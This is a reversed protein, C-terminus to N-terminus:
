EIKKLRVKLVILLILLGLIPIILNWKSFESSLRVYEKNLFYKKQKNNWLYEHFTFFITKNTRYYGRFQDSIILKEGDDLLQLPQSYQKVGNQIRYYITSFKNKLAPHFGLSDCIFISIAYTGPDAYSEKVVKQTSYIFVDSKNQTFDTTISYDSFGKEPLLIQKLTKTSDSSKIFHIGKKTFILDYNGKEIKRIYDTNYLKSDFNSDILAITDKITVIGNESTESNGQQFNIWKFPISYIDILLIGILLITLISILVELSKKKM